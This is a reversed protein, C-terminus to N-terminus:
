LTHVSDPEITALCSLGTFSCTKVSKENKLNLCAVTLFGTNSKEYLYM